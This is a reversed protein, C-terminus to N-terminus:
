DVVRKNVLDVCYCSMKTECHPKYSNWKFMQVIGLEGVPYPAYTTAGTRPFYIINDFM